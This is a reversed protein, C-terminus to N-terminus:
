FPLACRMKELQPRMKQWVFDRESENLIVFWSLPVLTLECLATTLCVRGFTASLWCHPLFGIGAAVLVSTLLPLCVEVGWKRLSTRATIRAFVMRGVALVGQMFIAVGMVLYVNKCLFGVFIALPITLVDVSCVVVHFIAIKGTANIAVVHPTTLADIVHLAMACYCLGVSFEPPFKLWLRMVENLELALPIMFLASLLVNFKCTRLVFCNMKEFDGAGCAQTIVPTFAGRMAGALTGCHGQVTVGIAQAANMTAGFFKNIVVSLGQGRLLSCFVGLMQWGSFYGLRKLRVGDWMYSFNIHCEQFIFLARFCIIFQPVVALFCTWASFKALWVGPHNIMYYLFLVNLTSTVFSYITLEAIHQKATYMALFPVNLMGVFCSLCVFRFVWVCDAIRDVPITLWNTIAHAGIPYGISILVFPVVTHISLATNFWHRCEELAADQNEAVKAAGVSFAYFRANAGALVTNFFTIFATLGGVLGMLGYDVKGLAMLTWRGCVLGLAIAYLSRGYTALINWFVRRTESMQPRVLKKHNPVSYQAELHKNGVLIQEYSVERRELASRKVLDDGRETFSLVANIGCRADLDAYVKEVGWFDGIQVDAANRGARFSCNLCCSRPHQGFTKWYDAEYLPVSFNKSSDAFEVTFLGGRKGVVKRRHSVRVLRSGAMAELREAEKRWWSADVNSMCIIACCILNPDSGFVRRVAATQCPTGSFLVRRGSALFKRMPAYVGAIDSVLYKSGRMESLGDLSETWTHYVCRCDKSWVAGFVVGGDLLVVKSLETFAGGSTSRSLLDADTTYAAYCAIPKRKSKIWSLNDLLPSM